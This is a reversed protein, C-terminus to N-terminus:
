SLVHTSSHIRIITSYNYSSNNKNKSNDEEKEEDDDDDDDDNSMAGGRVISIRIMILLIPLLFTFQHRYSSAVLLRNMTTM